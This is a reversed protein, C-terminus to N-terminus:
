NIYQLLHAPVEQGETLNALEAAPDVPQREASEALEGAKIERNTKREIRNLITWAEKVRGELEKIEDQVIGRVLGSLEEPYEGVEEVSASKKARKSIEWWFLRM